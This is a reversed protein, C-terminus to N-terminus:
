EPMLNPCWVCHIRRGQQHAKERISYMELLMAEFDSALAKVQAYLDEALLPDMQLNGGLGKLGDLATTSPNGNQAATATPAALEERCAVLATQFGEILAIGEREKDYWAAGKAQLDLFLKALQHNGAGGTGAAARKKAM